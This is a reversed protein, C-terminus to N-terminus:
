PQALQGEFFARAMSTWGQPLGHGGDHIALRVPARSCSESWNRTRFVDGMEIADPHSRCENQRVAYSLSDWVSGQHWDRIARGEFPVQGDGFGHVHLIPLGTLGACDTPNPRRLAGAVAVMGALHEGAECAMLWAMSGGASFGSAYIRDRDIPFDTELDDLISLSFAVDDRGGSSARAPHSQPGDGGRREGNPAVLLYGNGGFDTALGGNGLISRGHGNHGHYFIMVPLADTGNWGAPARMHYTGGDIECPTQAGGCTSQAQVTIPLILAIATLFPKLM